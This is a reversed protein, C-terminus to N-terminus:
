AAKKVEMAWPTFLGAWQSFQPFVYGDALTGFFQHSFVGIYPVEEGVIKLMKGILQLRREPQLAESQESLLKVVEPNRYNAYNNLQTPPLVYGFLGEPDAYYGADETAFITFRKKEYRAAIEDNPIEEVKATIGIKALDSALIQVLLVMGPEAVQAQMTTTFGHPYPSKALERRAATLDFAYKPLTELVSNVHSPSGLDAFMATPALTVDPTALGNPYLASIMGKIDTAYAIARRVHVNNFPPTTTGMGLYAILLGSATLPRTGAINAFLKPKVYFYSGDIAGSRLALSMPSEEKFLSINIKAAPQVPGSWYPNRSLHVGVEPKYSDIKWPGTGILPHGPTGLAQEGMKEAAAKEIVQSTFAMVYPWAADPRKLKITVTSNGRASIAAVDEWYPKVISERGYLNRDLSYMVDAVKLPTGDSFRLGSRIHYVYTTPTPQEISSALGPKVKGSSEFEVLNQVALHQIAAVPYWQNKSWDIAGPFTPFGWRLEAYSKPSGPGTAGPQSKGGGGCGVVLAAVVLATGMYLYKRM